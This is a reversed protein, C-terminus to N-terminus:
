QLAAGGGAQRTQGGACERRGHAFPLPPVQPNRHSLLLGVTAELFDIADHCAAQLRGVGAFVDAKKLNVEVGSPLRVTVEKLLAARVGEVGSHLHGSRATLLGKVFVIALRIGLSM